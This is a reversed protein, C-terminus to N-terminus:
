SKEDLHYGSTFIVSIMGLSHIYEIVEWFGADIMPEGAGPFEITKAGLQKAQFILNKRDETTLEVRNPIKNYRDPTRDCYFCKLQCEGTLDMDLHLLQNIARANAVDERSYDTGAAWLDELRAKAAKLHEMNGGM